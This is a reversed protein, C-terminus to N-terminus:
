QSPAASAPASVPAAKLAAEIAASMCQMRVFTAAGEPSAFRQVTVSDDNPGMAVGSPSKRWALSEFQGERTLWEGHEAVM